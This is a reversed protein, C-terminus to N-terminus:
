YGRLMRLRAHHVNGRSRQEARSKGVKYPVLPRGPNRLSMRPTYYCMSEPCSDWCKTCWFHRMYRKAVAACQRVPEAGHLLCTMRGNNVVLDRAFQKGSLESTVEPVPKEKMRPRM